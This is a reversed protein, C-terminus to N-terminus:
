YSAEGTAGGYVTFNARLLRRIVSDGRRSASRLRRLDNRHLSNGQFLFNIGPLRLSSAKIEGCLLEVQVIPDPLNKSIGVAFDDNVNWDHHVTPLQFNKGSETHLMGNGAPRGLTSNSIRRIDGQVFHPRQRTPHSPFAGHDINWKAAGLAADDAIRVPHRHAFKLAHGAAVGRFQHLEDPWLFVHRSRIHVGVLLGHSPNHIGIGHVHALGYGGHNRALREVNAARAAAALCGSAADHDDAFLSNLLQAEGTLGRTHDNLSKAIYSRVGGAQHGLCTILDEADRFHFATEIVLVTDIDIGEPFEPLALARDMAEGARLAIISRFQQDGIALDQDGGSGLILDGATIGIPHFAFNKSLAGVAGGGCGGVVDQRVLSYEYNGVNQAIGAAHGSGVELPHLVSLAVEPLLRHDVLLELVDHLGSEFVNDTIRFSM